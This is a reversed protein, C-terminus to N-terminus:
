PTPATLYCDKRNAVGDRRNTINAFEGRRATQGAVSIADSVGIALDADVDVADELAGLRGVQRHMCGILNSSTMLRFVAFASPRSLAASAARGRRRPSRIFRRSNM